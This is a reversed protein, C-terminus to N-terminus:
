AALSLCGSCLGGQHSPPLFPGQCYSTVPSVSSPEETLKHEINTSRLMRLPSQMPACILNRNAFRYLEGGQKHLAQSRRELKRGESSAKSQACSEEEACATVGGLAVQIPQQQSRNYVSVCIAQRWLRGANDVQDKRFQGQLACGSVWFLKEQKATAEADM